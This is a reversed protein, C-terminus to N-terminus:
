HSYVPGSRDGGTLRPAQSKRCICQACLSVRCLAAIFVGCVVSSLSLLLFRRLIDSYVFHLRAFIYVFCMCLKYALQNNTIESQNM